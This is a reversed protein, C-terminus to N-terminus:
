TIIMFADFRRQVETNSALNQPLCGMESTISASYVNKKRDSGTRHAQRVPCRDRHSFPPVMSMGANRIDASPIPNTRLWGAWSRLIPCHRRPAACNLLTARFGCLSLSCFAQRRIPGRRRGAGPMGRQPDTHLRAARSSM